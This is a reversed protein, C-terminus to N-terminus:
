KEEVKKLITKKEKKKKFPFFVFLSVFVVFLFACLQSKERKLYVTDDAIGFAFSCNSWDREAGWIPATGSDSRNLASNSAAAIM